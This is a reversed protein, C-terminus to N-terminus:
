EEFRHEEEVHDPVREMQIEAYRRALKLKTQEGLVVFRWPETVHHNPAWIGYGFVKEVAEKPVPDPKFRFITRRSEITDLVDM